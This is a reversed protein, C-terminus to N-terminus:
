LSNHYVEKFEKKARHLRTKIASISVGAIEAIEKHPKDEIFYMQLINRTKRPMKTLFSAIYDSMELKDINNDNMDPIFEEMESTLCVEKKNKSKRYYTCCTNFLIRFAWSKFSAGERIEFKGANLYIKTFTEQVIDEVDDNGNTFKGAHKLFLTQYRDLIISFLAPTNVSLALIEEDSKKLLEEEIHTDTLFM